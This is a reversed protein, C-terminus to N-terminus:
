KTKPTRRKTNPGGVMKDQPPKRKSKKKPRPAPKHKEARGRRVLDKEIDDSFTAVTNESYYHVGIWIGSKFKVTM